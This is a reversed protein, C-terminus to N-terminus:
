HRNDGSIPMPQSATKNRVIPQQAETSGVLWQLLARNGTLSLLLAILFVASMAFFPGYALLLVLRLLNESM